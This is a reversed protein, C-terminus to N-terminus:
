TWIGKILRIIGLAACDLGALVGVWSFITVFAQKDREFKGAITSFGISVFWFVIACILWQWWEIYPV